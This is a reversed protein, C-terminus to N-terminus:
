QSPAARHLLVWLPLPEARARVEAQGPLPQRAWHGPRVLGHKKACHGRNEAHM